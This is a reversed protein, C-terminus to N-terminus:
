ATLNIQSTQDFYEKEIRARLKLTEADASSSKNVRAPGTSKESGKENGNERNRANENGNGVSVSINQVTLGSKELADKLMQINSELIGKVQQNEATIKALIEGREHIIKLSLKGLSDPKLHMEMEQRNEGAMLKVKMMVQNTVTHALPREPLPLQMKGINTPQNSSERHVQQSQAFLNDFSTENKAAFEAESTDPKKIGASYDGKHDNTESRTKPEVKATEEQANMETNLLSDISTEIDQDPNLDANLEAVREKLKEILHGCQAKMQGMLDEIGANENDIEVKLESSGTLNQYGAIKEVLAQIKEMLEKVEPTQQNESLENMIVKLKEFDGKILAMLLEMPPIKGTEPELVLQPLSKSTVPNASVHIIDLRAMLEELLAILAELSGIEKKIKEKNEAENTTSEAKPKARVEPRSAEVNKELEKDPKLLEPKHEQSGVPKMDDKIARSKRLNNNVEVPRNKISSNKGAAIRESLLNMFTDDNTSSRKAAGAKPIDVNTPILLMATVANQRM